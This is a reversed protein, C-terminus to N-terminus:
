PLPEEQADEKTNTHQSPTDRNFTLHVSRSQVGDAAVAFIPFDILGNPFSMHFHFTGDPNLEVPQGGITVIADPETAGYVILEADAVLWFKRSRVPPMSAFFGIGSMGVGSMGYGSMTPVGMGVGSMGVGSMGVGSMGVGSMGVGSMGVGSGIGYGSLTYSEM